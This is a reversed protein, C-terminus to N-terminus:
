AGLVKLIFNVREEISGTVPIVNLNFKEILYEFNDVIKQRYEKSDSRVGDGVIDFEPPFYFIFDYLPMIDKVVQLSYLYFDDSIKDQDYLAKTYGTVDLVSRDCISWEVFARRTVESLLLSQNEEDGNENIKKALTRTASGIFEFGNEKFYDHNKLQNFITSKGTSHAGVLAIRM